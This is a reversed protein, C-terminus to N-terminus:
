VVGDGDIRKIPKHKPKLEDLDDPNIGRPTIRVTPLDLEDRITADGPRPMIDDFGPPNRKRRRDRPDFLM